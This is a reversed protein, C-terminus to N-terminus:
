LLGGGEPAQIQFQFSGIGDEASELIVDLVGDVVPQILLSVLPEEVPPQVVFNCNVTTPVATRCSGLLM